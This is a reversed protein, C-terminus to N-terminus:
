PRMLGYLAAWLGVALVLLAGALPRSPPVDCAVLILVAGIVACGAAVCSLFASTPM